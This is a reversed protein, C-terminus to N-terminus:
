WTAYPEKPIPATSPYNWLATFNDNCVGMCVIYLEKKTSHQYIICSPSIRFNCQAVVDYHHTKHHLQLILMKKRIISSPGLLYCCSVKSSNFEKICLNSTGKWGSIWYTAGFKILVMRFRSIFSVQLQLCACCITRVM